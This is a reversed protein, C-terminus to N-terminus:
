HRDTAAHGERAALVRQIYPDTYPSLDSTPDNVLDTFPDTPDLADGDSETDGFADRYADPECLPCTHEPKTNGFARVIAYTIAFAIAFAIPVALAISM